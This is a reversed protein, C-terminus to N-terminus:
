NAKVTIQKPMATPSKEIKITLVGDAHEASVETDSPTGAWVTKTRRTLPSPVKGGAVWWMMSAAVSAM